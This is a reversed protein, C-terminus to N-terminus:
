AIRCTRCGCCSEIVLRALSPTSNFDGDLGAMFTVHQGADDIANYVRLYRATPSSTLVKMIEDVPFTTGSLLNSISPDPHNLVSDEFAKIHSNIRQFDAEEVLTRKMQNKTESNCDSLTTENKLLKPM